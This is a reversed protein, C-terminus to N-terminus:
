TGGGETECCQLCNCAAELNLRAAEHLLMDHECCGAAKARAQAPQLLQTLVTLLIQFLKSWNITAPDFGLAKVMDEAQKKSLQSPIM